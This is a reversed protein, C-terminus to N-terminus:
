EWDLKNGCRQCYEQCPLEEIVNLGCVPCKWEVEDLRNDIIIPEKPTAKEKLAKFEEITGIAQYERLLTLDSLYGESLRAFQAERIKIEKVTGIARYQQIEELSKVAVGFAELLPEEEKVLNCKACERDCYSARQICRIENEMYEKAENETMSEGRGCKEAVHLVTTKKFSQEETVTQVIIYM